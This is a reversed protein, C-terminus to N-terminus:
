LNILDTHSSQKQPFLSLSQHKSIPKFGTILTTLQTWRLDINYQKKRPFLIASLLSLADLTLHPGVFAKHRFLSQFFSFASLSFHDLSLLSPSEQSHGVICFTKRFSVVQPSPISKMTHRTDYWKSCGCSASRWHIRDPRSNSSLPLRIPNCSPSM